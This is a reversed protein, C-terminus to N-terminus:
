FKLPRRKTKQGGADPATKDSPRVEDTRPTRSLPASRTTKRESSTGREPRENDPQPTRTAYYPKDLLENIFEKTAPPYDEVDPLRYKAPKQKGKKIVAWRGPLDQYAFAADAPSINGGFGMAKMMFMRDEPNPTNLMVKVRANNTVSDFIRKDNIQSNFHHALIVRLGSKRKKALTYDIQPTVFTGAEDIYLYHVGKWNRNALVDVAQIIQSLVMVGLLTAEDETLRYPSLNVLIVYGEAVAEIFNIGDTNGLMSRLPEQWLIDM